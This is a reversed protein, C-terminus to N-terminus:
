RSLVLVDSFRELRHGADDAAAIRMEFIGREQFDYKSLWFSGVKGHLRVERHCARWELLSFSQNPKSIQVVVSTAGPVNSADFHFLTPTDQLSVAGADSMLANAALASRGAAKGNLPPKAAGVFSLVIDPRRAFQQLQQQSVPDQNWYFRPQLSVVRDGHAGVIASLMSANYCVHAGKYQRPPNVYLLKGERPMRNLADALQGRIRDTLVSAEVWAGANGISAIARMTTFGIVLGASVAVAWWRSKLATPDVPVMLLALGLALFQSSMYFFRSGLGDTAMYAFPAVPVICVFWACVAFALLRFYVYNDTYVKMALLVRVSLLIYLARFAMGIWSKDPIVLNNFPYFVRWGLSELRSFVDTITFPEMGHYGGAITGLVVYRAALLLVLALLTKTLLQFCLAARRRMNEGQRPLICAYCLAVAPLVVASEKSLMAAVFLFPVAKEHRSSSEHYARLFCFFAAAFFLTALLDVRGTIWIISECHLPAVVFMLGAVFGFWAPQAISQALAIYRAGLAVLMGTLAHVLLNSLHYGVASRGWIQYEAFFTLQSLPRYFSQFNSPQWSSTFLSLLDAHQSEKLAIFDDALFGVQAAKGFCIGAILVYALLCLLGFAHKYQLSQRLSVGPEDLKPVLTATDSFTSTM